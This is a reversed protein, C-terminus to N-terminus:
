KKCKQGAIWAWFPRRLGWDRFCTYLEIESKLSSNLKTKSVLISDKQLGQQESAYLQRSYSEAEIHLELNANDLFMNEGRLTDNAQRFAEIIEGCGGNDLAALSDAKARYYDAVKAKKISMSEWYKANNKAKIAEEAYQKKVNELGQQIDIRYLQELSDKTISIAREVRAKEKKASAKDEQCKNIGIVSFIVALVVIFLIPKWYAKLIEIAKM